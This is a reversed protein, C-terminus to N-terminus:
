GINSITVSNPGHPTELVTTFPRMSGNECYVRMSVPTNDPGNWLEIDADLPTDESRLVVQVQEVAPSKYSWTRM